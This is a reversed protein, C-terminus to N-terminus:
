EGGLWVPVVLGDTDIGALTLPQPTSSSVSYPEHTAKISANIAAEFSSVGVSRPLKTKLRLYRLVDNERAWAALELVKDSLVTEADLRSSLLEDLAAQNQIRQYDPEYFASCHAIARTMSIIGYTSAGRKADWKERYLASERFLRGMQEMDGRSWFALIELLAMDAQSHTANYEGNYLALFKDGNAANSAMRILDEDSLISKGDGAIGQSGAKMEPRLMYADLFAQFQDATIVMEPNNATREVGECSLPSTDHTLYSVGTVTMYRNTLGPLYCEVGISANNTYYDEKDITVGDPVIFFLHLGTGSPSIEVFAGPMLDLISRATESLGGDDGICHDIDICGVGNSIKVGVGSFVPKPVSMAKLASGFSVFSTDVDPKVRKGTLPSYPIKTLRGEKEEYKWNCALMGQIPSPYSSLSELNFIPGERTHASLADM